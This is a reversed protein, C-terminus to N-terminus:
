KPGPSQLDRNMSERLDVLAQDFADIRIWGLRPYEIDLIVFVAIAMVLAFGLMHFRSRLKGGTMGYGALLSAVLALGFLMVFVVRPPHLQAAMTRTTTIDNMGDLAPLVRWPGAPLAGETRVAAVAQRWIELQLENGRALSARVATVDPIKRYTEIRNDLYRKFSERLAPQAEAPLVDIRLYATGINNTEEVILLRRADFRASAGSFTFAILLGLVAFVAGDVAGIGEIDATSDEELRRLGFRRGLELCLLMGVFLGITYLFVTTGHGM